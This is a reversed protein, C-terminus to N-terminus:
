LPPPRAKKHKHCARSIDNSTVDGDDDIEFDILKASLADELDKATTAKHLRATWAQVSLRRTARPADPISNPPHMKLPM